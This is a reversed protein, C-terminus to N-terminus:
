VIGRSHLYKIIDVRSTSERVEFVEVVDWDGSMISITPAQVYPMVKLNAYQGSHESIFERLGPFQRIQCTHYPAKLKAWTQSVLM